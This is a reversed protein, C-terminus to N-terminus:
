ACHRPPRYQEARAPSSARSGRGGRQGIWHDEIAETCAKAERLPRGCDTGADCPYRGARRRGHAPGKQDVHVSKSM